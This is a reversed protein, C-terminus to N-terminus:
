LLIRCIKLYTLFLFFTPPNNRLPLLILIISINIVQAYWYVKWNFVNTKPVIFISKTLIFFQNCNAKAVLKLYNIFSTDFILFLITLRWPPTSFKSPFCAKGDSVFWFSGNPHILLILYRAISISNHIAVRMDWPSAALWFFQYTTGVIDM